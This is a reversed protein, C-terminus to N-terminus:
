LNQPAFFNAERQKQQRKKEQSKVLLSPSGMEISNPDVPQGMFNFTPIPRRPENNDYLGTLGGRAEKVQETSDVMGEEETPEEKKFFWNQAFGKKLLYSALKSPPKEPKDVKEELVAPSHLHHHQNDQQDTDMSFVAEEHQRHKAIRKRLEKLQQLSDKTAVPFEGGGKTMASSVRDTLLGASSVQQEIQQQVSSAKQQSNVELQKGHYISITAGSSSVTNSLGFISDEGPSPIGFNSSSGRRETVTGLRPIIITNHHSSGFGDSSDEDMSSPPATGGTSADTFGMSGRRHQLAMRALWTNNSPVTLM